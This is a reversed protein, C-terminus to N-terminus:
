ACSVDPKTADQSFELLDTEDAGDAAEIPQFLAITGETSNAHFRELVYKPSQNQCRREGQDRQYRQGQADACVGRNEAYQVAHEDFGQWIWPGVLQHSDPM